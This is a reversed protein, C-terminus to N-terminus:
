FGDMLIPTAGWLKSVPQAPEILLGTYHCKAQPTANWQCKALTLQIQIHSEWKPRLLCRPSQLGVLNPESTPEAAKFLVVWRGVKEVLYIHPNLKISRCSFPLQRGM